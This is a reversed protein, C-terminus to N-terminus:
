RAAEIESNGSYESQCARVTAIGTSSISLTYGTGEDSAGSGDDWTVISSLSPSVPVADMYGETVLGAINVCSGDATITTDCNGAVSQDDCGTTMTAGNVMMYVNGASLGAISTLYSGGNDIQDLKVASLIEHVDNQRVADRAQQFRTAPDLAVFIIAVLVGIIAIVVLLEVLTFGLQNKQKM